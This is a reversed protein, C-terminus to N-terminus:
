TAATASATVAADPQEPTAVDPQALAGHAAGGGVGLLAGAVVDRGGSRSVGPILKILMKHDFKKYFLRKHHKERIVTISQLKKAFSYRHL